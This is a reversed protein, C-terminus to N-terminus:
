GYLKEKLKTVKNLPLAGPDTGTLKINKSPLEVTSCLEHVKEAGAQGPDDGDFFVFVKSVGSMKLMELKEKQVNNTGFCCITNSLGKDHLNIADYLGEVLIVSGQIPTVFPYLPLVSKRPWTIYKPTGGSTHRGHFCSIRGSATYIPFMIRGAYESATSTFANFKKYTEQSIDRWTGHYPIADKPMQLGVTSAQKKAILQKFLERRMSLPSTEEQFHHFINGRFGCSFCNFHGQIKDIRMSPNNDDHEPSLCRVLYDAGKEMYDVHHKKLVSEVDM